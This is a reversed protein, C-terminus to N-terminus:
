GLLRTFWRRSRQQPAAVINVDPVKLVRQAAWIGKDYEFSCLLLVFTANV